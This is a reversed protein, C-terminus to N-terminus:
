RAQWPLHVLEGDVLAVAVAATLAKPTLRPVIAAIDDASDGVIVLYPRAPDELSGVALAAAAAPPGSAGDPSIVRLGGERVGILEVGVRSASLLDRIWPTTTVDDATALVLGGAPASKALPRRSALELGNAAAWDDLGTVDVAATVPLPRGAYPRPFAHLARPLTMADAWRHYDWWVTEGGELKWDAAGVDGLVGDVWYFWDAADASSVGGFTSTLGDIGNVFQGGYGTDIEANEALVRLADAKDGAPMVVDRLVEGGFDRSVVLRVEDASPTRGGRGSEGQGGEGEGCAALALTALAVTCVVFFALTV